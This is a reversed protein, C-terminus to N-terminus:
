KPGEAVPELKATPRIGALAQIFAQHERLQPLTQKVFERITPDTSKEASEYIAIAQEDAELFADLLAKDLRNGELKTLRVAFKKQAANETNAIRINRMEALSNLVVSQAAISKVLNGGFEQLEPSKAREATIALSTLTKGIDAAQSIFLLDRGNMDSSLLAPKKPKPAAAPATNEQASAAFAALCLIHFFRHTM